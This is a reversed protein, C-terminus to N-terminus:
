LRVTLARTIPFCVRVVVVSSVYETSVPSADQNKARKCVLNRIDHLCVHGHPTYGYLRTRIVQTECIRLDDDSIAAMAWDPCRLYRRISWCGGNWKGIAYPAM